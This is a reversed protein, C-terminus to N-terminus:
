RIWCGRPRYRRQRSLGQSTAAIFLKPTHIYWITRTALIDSQIEIHRDSSRFLAYTGDPKAAGPKWWDSQPKILNGLCISQAKVRVSEVPNIVAAILRDSEIITPPNPVINDPTLKRNLLTVKKRYIAPLRGNKACIYITRSM